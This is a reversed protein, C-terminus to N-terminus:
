YGHCYIKLWFSLLLTYMYYKCLQQCCNGTWCIEGHGDHQSLQAQWRGRDSISLLRHTSQILICRRDNGWLKTMFDILITTQFGRSKQSKKESKTRLTQSTSYSINTFKKNRVVQRRALWNVNCPSIKNSWEFFRFCYTVFSPM